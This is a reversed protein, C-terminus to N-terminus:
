YNKYFNRLQKNIITFTIQYCNIDQLPALEIRLLIATIFNIITDIFGLQQIKTLHWSCSPLNIKDLLRKFM